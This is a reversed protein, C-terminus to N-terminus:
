YGFDPAALSERPTLLAPDVYNAAVDAFDSIVVLTETRGAAQLRRQRAEYLARLGAATAQTATIDLRSIGDNGAFLLLQADNLTSQTLVLEAIKAQALGAVGESSLVAGTMDLQTLWKLGALHSVGVGTVRTERVSLYRLDQIQGVAPLGADTIATKDLVLSSISLGALASLGNDTIATGALYFITPGTCRMLASNEIDTEDSDNFIASQVNGGSVLHALGKDSLDTKSLEVEVLQPLPGLSLITADDIQSNDIVLRTLAAFGSTAPTESSSKGISHLELTQLQSLKALQRVAGSTISSSFLKLIQLRPLRSIRVVDADTLKDSTIELEELQELRPWGSIRAFSFSDSTVRFARLKDLGSSMRCIDDVANADYQWFNFYSESYSVEAVESWVADGVVQRVFGPLPDPQGPLQHQFTLSCGHAQLRAAVVARAIIRYGFLGGLVVVVVCSVAAAAVLRKAWRLAARWPFQSRVPVAIASGPAAVYRATYPYETEEWRDSTM